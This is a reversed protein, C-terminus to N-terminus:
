SISWTRVVHNFPYPECARRAHDLATGVLPTDALGIGALKRRATADM